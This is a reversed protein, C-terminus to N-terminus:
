RLWLWIGAISAALAALGFRTGFLARIVDALLVGFANSLVDRLFRGAFAILLGGFLLALFWGPMAAFLGEFLPSAAGLLVIVILSSALRRLSLTWLLGALVLLPLLAESPLFMSGFGLAKM